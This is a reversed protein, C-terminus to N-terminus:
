YVEDQNYSGKVIKGLLEFLFLSDKLSKDNLSKIANGNVKNNAWNLLQKEDTGGITMLTHKYVLQWILALTLKKNGDVLDQGGIGVVSFKFVEKAVKVAYNANQLKKFKNNPNSEVKSWDISGEMVRDMVKLLVVDVKIDAFLNM